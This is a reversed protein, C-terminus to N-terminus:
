VSMYPFSSLNVEASLLKVRLVLGDRPRPTTNSLQDAVRYALLNGAPLGCSWNSDPVSFWLVRSDFVICEGLGSAAAAQFSNAVPRAAPGGDIFAGPGSDRHFGPGM